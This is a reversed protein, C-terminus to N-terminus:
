FYFWLVVITDSTSFVMIGFRSKIGSKVATEVHRLFIIKNLWGQIEQDVDLFYGTMHVREVQWGGLFFLCDAHYLDRDERGAEFSCM